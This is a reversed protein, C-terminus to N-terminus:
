AFNAGSFTLRPFHLFPQAIKLIAFKRLLPIKIKWPMTKNIARKTVTAMPMIGAQIFQFFTFNRGSVM